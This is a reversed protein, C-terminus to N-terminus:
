TLFGVIIAIAIGAALAFNWMRQRRNTETLKANQANLMQVIAEINRDVQNRHEAILSQFTEIDPETRSTGGEPDKRMASRVNQIVERGEQTGAAERLLNFAVRLWSM